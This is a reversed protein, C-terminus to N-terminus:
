TRIKNNKVCCRGVTGLRLCISMCFHSEIWCCGCSLSINLSGGLMKYLLPLDKFSMSM